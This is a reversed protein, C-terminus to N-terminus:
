KCLSLAIYVSKLQRVANFFFSFLFFFSLFITKKEVFYCCSVKSHVPMYINKQLKPSPISVLINRVINLDATCVIADCKNEFM